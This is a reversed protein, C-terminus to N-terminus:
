DFGHGLLELIKIELESFKDNAEALKKADDLWSYFYENSVSSQELTIIAKKLNNILLFEKALVLTKRLPEIRENSETQTKEYKTIKFTASFIDRMYNIFDEKSKFINEANSYSDNEIKQFLDDIDNEHLLLSKNIESLFYEEKKLNEIDLMKFFNLYNIMSSDQSFIDLLIEIEERFGIRNYFNVRLILFNILIKNRKFDIRFSDNPDYQRFSEFAQNTNKLQRNLENNKKELEKIKKEFDNILLNINKLEDEFILKKEVEENFSNDKFNNEIKSDQSLDQKGNHLFSFHNKLPQFMFLGLSFFFLFIITYKFFIKLFGSKKKFEGKNLDIFEGKQPIEKEKNAM